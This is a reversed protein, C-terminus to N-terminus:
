KWIIRYLSADATRSTLECDAGARVMPWIKDRLYDNSPGYNRPSAILLWVGRGAFLNRREDLTIRWQGAPDILLTSGARWAAPVPQIFAAQEANMRRPKLADEWQAYVNSNLIAADVTSVYLAANPGPTARAYPMLALEYDSILWDGAPVAKLLPPIQRSLPVRSHADRNFFWGADRLWEGRLLVLAIFAAAIHGLTKLRFGSFQTRRFVRWLPVQVLGWAALMDALPIWVLLFRSAQFFYLACFLFGTAGWGALVATVIRAPRGARRPWAVCVLAIAITAAMYASYYDHTRGLVQIAYYRLNGPQVNGPIGGDWGAFMYHPNFTKWFHTYVRPYWYKYGNMGWAGFAWREYLLHAAICAAVAAIFAALERRRGHLWILIALAAVWYIFPAKAVTLWGAALGALLARGTRPSFETATVSNFWPRSLDVMCLWVLILGMESMNLTAAVITQPHLAFFGAALAGAIRSGLLRGGVRALMATALLGMLASAMWLRDFSLAWTFPALLLPYSMPYRSPFEWLGVPVLPAQGHALRTATVAYELADPTPILDAGDSHPSHWVVWGYALCPILWYPFQRARPLRM